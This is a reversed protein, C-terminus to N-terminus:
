DTALWGSEDTTFVVLNTKQAEFWTLLRGMERNLESLYRGKACTLVIELVVADDSATVAEIIHGCSASLDGATRRIESIAVARRLEPVNRLEVFLFSRQVRLHDYHQAEDLVLFQAQGGGPAQVAGASTVMLRHDTFDVLDQSQPDGAMGNETLTKVVHTHFGALDFTSPAALKVALDWRGLVEYMAVPRVDATRELLEAIIKRALECDVVSFFGLSLVEDAGLPLVRTPLQAALADAPCRANEIWPIDRTTATPAQERDNELVYRDRLDQFTPEGEPRGYVFDLLWTAQRSPVLKGDLWRNIMGPDYSIAKNTSSSRLDHAEAAETLRRALEAQSALGADDMLRRLAARIADRAQAIKAIKVM